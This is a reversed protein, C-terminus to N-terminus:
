RGDEGKRARASKLLQAVAEIAECLRANAEEAFREGEWGGHEGGGEQALRQVLATFAFAEDELRLEELLPAVREEAGPGVAGLLTRAIDALAQAALARLLHADAARAPLAGLVARVPSRLTYWMLSIGWFSFARVSRLPPRAGGVDAAM